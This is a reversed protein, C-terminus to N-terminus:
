AGTMPRRGRRHIRFETKDSARKDLRPSILNLIEAVPVMRRKGILLTKVVEEGRLRQNRLTKISLDLVKAAEGESVLLRGGFIKEALGEEDM